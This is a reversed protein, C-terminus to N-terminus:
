LIRLFSCKIFHYHAILSYFRGSIDCTKPIDGAWFSSTDNFMCKADVSSGENCLVSIRDTNSSISISSYKM